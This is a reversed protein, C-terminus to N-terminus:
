VVCVCREREREGHGSLHSYDDLDNDSTLDTKAAHQSSDYPLYGVVYLRIALKSSCRGPVTGSCEGSSTM